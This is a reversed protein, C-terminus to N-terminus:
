KKRKGKQLFGGDRVPNPPKKCNESLALRGCAPSSGNDTLRERGCVTEHQKMRICLMTLASM